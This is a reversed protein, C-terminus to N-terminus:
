HGSTGAPLRGRRRFGAVTGPRKRRPGPPRSRICASLASAAAAARHFMTPIRPCSPTSRTAAASLRRASASMARFGVDGWLCRFSRRGPSLCASYGALDCSHWCDSVGEVTAEPGLENRGILIVSAHKRADGRRPPARAVCRRVVHTRTGDQSSWPRSAMRGIAERISGVRGSMETRRGRHPYITSTTNSTNLRHRYNM